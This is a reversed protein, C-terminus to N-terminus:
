NNSFEPPFPRQPPPLVEPPATTELYKLLKRARKAVSLEELLQQKLEVTVPLGYGLIDCVIGLPLTSEIVKRYVDASSGQDKCWSPVLDLLQKRLPKALDASPARDKELEVRATRYLKGNDIEERIRARSLGRLQINFRGDPLRQDSVIRGLCVMPFIEPRGDYDTEWGPRLLAMAIFRDGALAEATMQRYRPEFIHLAQVLFPFLVVNPLPFLRATGSFEQLASADDNMALLEVLVIASKLNCIASKRVLVVL